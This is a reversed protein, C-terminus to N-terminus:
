FVDVARFNTCGGNYRVMDMTNSDRYQGVVRERCGSLVRQLRVLRQVLFALGLLSQFYSVLDDVRRDQQWRSGRKIRRDRVSHIGGGELLWPTELKALNRPVFFPWFYRTETM